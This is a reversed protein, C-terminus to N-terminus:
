RRVRTAVIPSLPSESSRVLKRPRSERRRSCVPKTSLRPTPRCCIGPTGTFLELDIQECGAALVESNWEPGWEYDMPPTNLVAGIRITPDVAKMALAFAKLNTGYAKPSLLPNGMRFKPDNAANPQYPAHWDMAYDGKYYGNGFVENGIEWVKIGLPRPHHIRLFDYGDDKGGPESARLTAWFGVTKWDIGAGDQGIVQQSSPDGNAYAVWAASEKPEGGANALLNAGYNATIIPLTGSAEVLAVFSGFDTHPAVYGYNNAELKWRTDKNTLWHYMDAYGGGPYRLASIGAIKLLDPVLSHSLNGDYVSTHMGYAELAIVGFGEEPRLTVQVLAANAPPKLQALDFTEDEVPTAGSIRPLKSTASETGATEAPPRLCMTLTLFPLAGLAACSHRNKRRNPEESM